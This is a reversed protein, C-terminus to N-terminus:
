AAAAQAEDEAIWDDLETLFEDLPIGEGADLSAVGEALKGRVYDLSQKRVQLADAVLADVSQARGAAVEADAWAQLDVPLTVSLM